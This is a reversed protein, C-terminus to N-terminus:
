IYGQEINELEGIFTSDYKWLKLFFIIRKFAFM